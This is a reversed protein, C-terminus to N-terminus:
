VKGQVRVTFDCSKGGWLVSNTLEVKAPRGLNQQFIERVYGVSCYCYTRPVDKPADELIPCLCYGDAVKLGAPNRVYKFVIVTEDGEQKIADPGFSKTIWGLFGKTQEPSPPQAPKGHAGNHCIEGCSEMIERAKSPDLKADLQAVIRKIVEQGQTVRKDCSARPPQAAQSTSQNEQAFLGAAPLLTAGCCLGLQTSKKLFEKRNM